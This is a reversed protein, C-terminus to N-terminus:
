PIVKLGNRWIYELWLSLLLEMIKLSTILNLVMGWHLRSHLQPHHPLAVSREQPVAFWYENKKGLQAYQQMSASANSVFTKKMPKGVRLCLFKHSRHKRKEASGTVSAFVTVNECCCLMYSQNLWCCDHCNNQPQVYKNTTYSIHREPLWM